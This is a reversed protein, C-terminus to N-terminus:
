LLLTIFKCSCLRKNVSQCMILYLPNLLTQPYTQILHNRHPRIHYGSRLLRQLHNLLQLLRAKHQIQLRNVRWLMRLRNQCLGLM